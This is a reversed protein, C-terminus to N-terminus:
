FQVLVRLERAHEPLGSPNDKEFVLTGTKTTPPTFTLVAKFPVFEETMWDNQAQAVATGLLVGEADYIRIPFSAEFYWLGRAEGSLEFPSKIPDSLPTTVTILDMLLAKNAPTPCAAFECNPGTRGVASGDPCIKAEMTCAVGGNTEKRQTAMGWVLLAGVLVIVSALVYAYSKKM